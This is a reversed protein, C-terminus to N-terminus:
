RGRAKGQELTRYGGPALGDWHEVRPSGTPWYVTLRGVRDARGLGFVIRRDSASAWSGGGKAFRTLLRGNVELTVKAGVYDANGKAVLRVGLWRNGSADVNRLVAVPENVNSIVLDPRGDNDLDGVALGRSRHGVRFYPGGRATVVEFKGRGKNRFLVPQQAVGARAPHRIVHGNAIVLDEWGDNDLDVFATGWGVYQQGIASIGAAQTAYTFYARGGQMENRYLAHMENEYNTCWLSARGIGFPDGADAGMSGDPLGKDDRAVGLEFGREVFRLRGPKSRNVYLFNDVTDNAVYIDPRRDDNVDVVVVGLGKGYAKEGDVLKDQGPYRIGAEKTVDVFRRRGDKGRVNQYLAHPVADYTRPPCVDRSVDPTYGPCRPNNDWSWNVYQCVYL